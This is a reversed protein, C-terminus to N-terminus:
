FSQNLGEAAVFRSAAAFHHHAIGAYDTGPEPTATKVLAWTANWLDNVFVMDRLSQLDAERAEGFYANLFSRRAPEDLFYASAALDFFIDGRGAYEWDHLWFKGDDGIFFNPAWPDNHCLGEIDPMAARRAQVCALTELVEALGEPMPFGLSRAHALRQHIDAYPDFADVGPVDLAHAQRLLTAVRSMFTPDKCDDFTGPRGPVHRTIFHGQPLEFLVPEFGLGAAYAAIIVDREISRDIGLHATGKGAVRAVFRAENDFEV